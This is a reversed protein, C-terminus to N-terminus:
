FVGAMQKLRDQPSLQLYIGTTAIDEHGLQDKVLVLNKTRNLIHIACGHRFTHPWVPVSIGDTHARLIGLKTSLQHVIRWVMKRGIHSDRAKRSQFVWDDPSISNAICYSLLDNCLEPSVGPLKETYGGQKLNVLQVYNTGIDRRRLQCVETCRGGSQFLLRLLLKNRESAAANIMREVEEATIYRPTPRVRRRQAKVPSAIDEQARDTSYHTNSSRRSAPM